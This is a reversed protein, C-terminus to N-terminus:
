FTVVFMVSGMVSHKTDFYFSLATAVMKEYAINCYKM